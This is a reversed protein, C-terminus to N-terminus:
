MVFGTKPGFRVAYSGSLIYYPLVTCFTTLFVCFLKLELYGHDLNSLSLCTLIGLVYLGVTLRQQENSKMRNYYYGLFILGAAYGLTHFMVLFTVNKPDVDTTENLYTALMKDFMRICANCGQVVLM